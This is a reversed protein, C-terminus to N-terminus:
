DNRRAKRFESTAVALLGVGLAVVIGVVGWKGIVDYVLILLWWMRISGGKAEANSIYFYLFGALAFMFGSYLATKWWKDDSEARVQTSEAM